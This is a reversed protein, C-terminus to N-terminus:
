VRKKFDGFFLSITCNGKDLAELALHLLYVLAHVTSSGVSAFKKPDLKPLVLPLTRNLTLGVMVKAIQCTLSVPRIDNEISRAPTVCLLM